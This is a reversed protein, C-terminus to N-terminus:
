NKFYNRLKLCYILNDTIDKFGTQPTFIKVSKNYEKLLNSLNQANRMGTNVEATTDNDACIIFKNFLNLLITKAVESGSLTTIGLVNINPCLLKATFYDSVGETLIVRDDKLNILSLGLLGFTDKHTIRYFNVCSRTM